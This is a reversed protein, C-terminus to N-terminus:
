YAHFRGMASALSGMRCLVRSAGSRAIKSLGAVVAFHSVLCLGSVEPQSSPVSNCCQGDASAEPCKQGKVGLGLMDGQISTNARRSGWPGFPSLPRHTHCM